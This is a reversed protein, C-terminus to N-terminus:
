DQKLSRCFERLEAQSKYKIPIKRIKTLANEAAEKYKEGMTNDKSYFLEEVCVAM